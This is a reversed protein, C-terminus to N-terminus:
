GGGGPKIFVGILFLEHNVGLARVSRGTRLIVQPIFFHPAIDPATRFPNSQYIIGPVSRAQAIHKINGIGSGTFM